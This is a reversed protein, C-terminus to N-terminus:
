FYQAIHREAAEQICMSNDMFKNCTIGLHTYNDVECIQVSGINWQSFHVKKTSMENFM